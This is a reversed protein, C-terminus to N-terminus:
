PDVIVAEYVSRAVIEEDTDDIIDMITSAVPNEKAFMYYAFHYLFVARHYPFVGEHVNALGLIYM